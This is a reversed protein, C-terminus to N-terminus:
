RGFFNAMLETTQGKLRGLKDSVSKDGSIYDLMLKGEEFCLADHAPFVERILFLAYKVLRFPGYVRVKENPLAEVAVSHLSKINGIIDQLESTHSFVITYYWGFLSGKECGHSDTSGVIPIKKGKSIEEHYRAVQLTNSEVESLHYGGLLEFADYPQTDFM